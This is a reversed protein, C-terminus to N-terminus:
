NNKVFTFYKFYTNFQSYKSKKTGGTAGSLGTEECPPLADEVGKVPKEM